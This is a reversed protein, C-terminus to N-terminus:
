GGAKIQPGGDVPLAVGNIYAADDSALFVTANTVDWATGMKGTPSLKDRANVTEEGTDYFETDAQLHRAYGHDQLKMSMTREGPGTNEQEGRRERAADLAERPQKRGVMGYASGIARDAEM